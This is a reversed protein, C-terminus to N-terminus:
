AELGLDRCISAPTPVPPCLLAAATPPHGSGRKDTTGVAQLPEDILNAPFDLVDEKELSLIAASRPYLISRVEEISKYEGGTDPM